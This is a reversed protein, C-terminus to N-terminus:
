EGEAAQEDEDWRQYVSNAIWLAAIGIGLIVVAVRPAGELRVASAALIVVFITVGVADGVNWDVM